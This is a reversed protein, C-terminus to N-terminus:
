RLAADADDNSSGVGNGSDSVDVFEDGGRLLGLPLTTPGHGRVVGGVKVGVVKGMGEVGWKRV